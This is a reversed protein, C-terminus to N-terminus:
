TTTQTKKKAYIFLSVGLPLKIGSLIANNELRLTNFLLSNIRNPLHRMDDGTKESIKFFAMICKPVFAFANWFSLRLIEFNNKELIKKVIPYTYRRYHKNKVDHESWLFQFAPVFLILIGNPKLIRNWESLALEDNACHELIDSAILIDFSNEKYKTKMGNCVCATKLGRENCTKIASKSIDIGSVNIYGASYLKKMLSGGACGIDLIKAKKSVKRILKMIIDRRGLFWWNSEEIAHYRKEYKKEM